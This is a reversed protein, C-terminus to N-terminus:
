PPDGAYSGEQAASAVLVGDRTFLERRTFMRGDHGVESVAQLLWWRDWRVTRHIWLSHERPTFRDPRFSVGLRDSATWHSYFASLFVVAAMEIRPDAPLPERPLVWERHFTTETLPAEPWPWPRGIRRLEIPGRAFPSWGEAEALEATSPLDEPDPLGYELTAGQYSLDGGPRGFRLTVSGVLRHSQRLSVRRCAILDGNSLPDVELDLPIQPSMPELYLAHLSLLSLEPCTSAAALAARAPADGADTEGWFDELQATCTTVGLRKVNLISALSERPVGYAM